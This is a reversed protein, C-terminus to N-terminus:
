GKYQGNYVKNIQKNLRNQQGQDLTKVKDRAAVLDQASQSNMYQNVKEEAERVHNRRIARKERETYGSTDSESYGYLYGSKEYFSSQDLDVINSETITEKVVPATDETTTTQKQQHAGVTKPASDETFEILNGNGGYVNSPKSDNTSTVLHSEGSMGSLKSSQGQRSTKGLDVKEERQQQKLVPAPTQTVSETYVTVPAKVEPEKIVFANESSNKSEPRPKLQKYSYKKPEKPTASKKAETKSEKTKVTQKNIARPDILSSDYKANQADDRLKQKIGEDDGNTSTLAPIDKPRVLNVDEFFQDIITELDEKMQAFMRKNTPFNYSRDDKSIGVVVDLKNYMDQVAFPNTNKFTNGIMIIKNELQNIEWGAKDLDENNFRTLDAHQAEIRHAEKDFEAKNKQLAEFVSKYRDYTLGYLNNPIEWYNYQQMEREEQRFKKLADMEALFKQQYKDYAEKYETEYYGAKMNLSQNHMLKDLSDLYEQVYNASSRNGTLLLSESKYNNNSKSVIASASNDFIFNSALIASASLVLLKKKM